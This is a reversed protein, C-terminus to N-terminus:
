YAHVLKLTPSCVIPALEVIPVHVAECEVLLSTMGISDSLGIIAVINSLSIRILKALVPLNAEEPWTQSGLSVDGPVGVVAAWSGRGLEEVHWNRLTISECSYAWLVELLAVLRIDWM